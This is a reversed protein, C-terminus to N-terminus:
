QILMGCQFPNLFINSSKTAIGFPYRNGTLRCAYDYLRDSYRSYLEGWAARDGTRARLVLAHDSVPDPPRLPM